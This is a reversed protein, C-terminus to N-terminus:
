HYLLLSKIEQDHTRIGGPRNKQRFKARIKSFLPIRVWNTRGGNARKNVGFNLKDYYRFVHCKTVKKQEGVSDKVPGIKKGKKDM